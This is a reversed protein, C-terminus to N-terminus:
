TASACTRSIRIKSLPCSHICFNCHLPRERQKDADSDRDDAESVGAPQELGKETQIPQHHYDDHQQLAAFGRIEGSSEAAGAALRSETRAARGVNKRLGGRPARHHKHEARQGHNQARVFSLAGAAGDKFSNRLRRWLWRRDCSGCNRGGM